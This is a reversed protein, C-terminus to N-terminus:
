RVISRGVNASKKRRPAEKGLWTDDSGAGLKDVRFSKAIKLGYPGM